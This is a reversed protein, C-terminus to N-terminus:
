RKEMPFELLVGRRAFDKKVEELYASLQSKTMLSTVPMFKMAALKHEYTLGKIAEDYFARFDNCETRLIPVGHHLKCYSKWGTADDEPLEAAMQQYWAHSLANQSLSREGDQVTVVYGNPASKIARIAAWRTEDSLLVFIQRM